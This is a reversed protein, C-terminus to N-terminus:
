TYIPKDSPLRGKTKLITFKNCKVGQGDLDDELEKHPINSVGTLVMRKTKTEKTPCMHYDCKAIDLEKILISYDDKNEAYIALSKPFYHLKPDGKIFSKLTTVFRSYDDWEHFIVVPPTKKEKGTTANVKEEQADKRVDQNEEMKEDQNSNTKDCEENNQLVEYRNSLPVTTPQEFDNRYHVKNLKLKKLNVTVRAM